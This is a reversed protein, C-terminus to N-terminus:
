QTDSAPKDNQRYQELAKYPQSIDPLPPAIASTQLRKLTDLTTQTHASAKDFHTEIWEIATAIREKYVEPQGSLMALRAQELQLRLNEILFFRQEPAILPQVPETHDRVVILHQLDRWIAAPLEAWSTVEQTSSAQRKLEAQRSKPDPTNLPLTEIDKNLASLTLSLGALDAQPVQKLALVADAIVKRVGIVGPDGTDRLRADASNLAVIATNIDREFLLRYNALQLLYEAELVLWDKRLHQNKARLSELNNMLDAQQRQLALLNENLESKLKSHQIQLQTQQSALEDIRATQQTFVHMGFFGAAAAGIVVVVLLLMLNPSSHRTRVKPVPKKQAEKAQQQKATDASATEAAPKNNDPETM